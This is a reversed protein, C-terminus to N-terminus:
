QSLYHPPSGNGSRDQGDQALATARHDAWFKLVGRMSDAGPSRNMVLSVTAPSLGVYDALQKLSISRHQGVAESDAGAKEPKPPVTRFDRM